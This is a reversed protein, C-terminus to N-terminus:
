PKDLEHMTVVRFVTRGDELGVPKGCLYASRGRLDKGKFVYKYGGATLEDRSRKAMLGTQIPSQLDEM